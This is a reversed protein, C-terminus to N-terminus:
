RIRLHRQPIPHQLAFADVGLCARASARISEHPRLMIVTLERPAETLSIDGPNEWTKRAMVEVRRPLYRRDGRVQLDSIVDRVVGLFAGSDLAVMSNDRPDLLVYHSLDESRLDYERALAPYRALPGLYRRRDQQRKRWTVQRQVEGVGQNSVDLRAAALKAHLQGDVSGNEVFTELDTLKFAPLWSVPLRLVGMSEPNLSVKGNEVRRVNPFEKELATLADASGDEVVDEHVLVVEFTASDNWRHLFRLLQDVDFKANRVTSLVSIMDVGM